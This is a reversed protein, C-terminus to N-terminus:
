GKGTFLMQVQFRAPLKLTTKEPIELSKKDELTRSNVQFTIRYSEIEWRKGVIETLENSLFSSETKKSNPLPSSLTWGLPVRIAWASNNGCYKYELARILSYADQGLIM